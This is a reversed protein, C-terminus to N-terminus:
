GMALKLFLYCWHAALDSLVGRSYHRQQVLAGSHENHNPFHFLLFLLTSEIASETDTNESDEKINQRAQIIKKSLLWLLASGIGIIPLTLIAKAAETFQYGVELLGQATRLSLCLGLLLMIRYGVKAVVDNVKIIRLDHQKPAFLSHGLWHSWCNFIHCGAPPILNNKKLGLSNLQLLYFAGLIM